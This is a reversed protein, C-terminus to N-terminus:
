PGFACLLVFILHKRINTNVGYPFPIDTGAHFPVLIPFGSSSNQCQERTTKNDDGMLPRMFNLSHPFYTWFDNDCYKKTNTYVICIKIHLERFGTPKQFLCVM